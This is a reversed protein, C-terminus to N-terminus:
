KIVRDARALVNPPITVGIQKATKLNVVLEFKSPREIPLDAPKAGKLIKDVLHASRQCLDLVSAGYSILGGAEAFHSGGAATPLRKSIALEFIRSRNQSFMTGEPLILANAQAEVIASFAKDLGDSGIAEIRKLQLRLARAEQEINGPILAHSSDNPDVLVAVRFATPVTEKLVELRKGIIESDRLELGTINGGPRALSSVIGLEVLDRSVGAVIPITITARKAALIAERSHTWILSPKLQVLGGALNALRDLQWEAFRTEILVNQNEVYGLARLGQRVGDNCVNTVGGPELIGIRPIKQQAQASACFAVLLVGVFCLASRLATLTLGFLKKRV